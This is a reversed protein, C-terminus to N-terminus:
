KIQSKAYKMAQKTTAEKIRKIEKQKTKTETKNWKRSRVPTGHESFIITTPADNVTGESGCSPFMIVYWHTIPKSDEDPEPPEILQWLLPVQLAGESGQWLLNWM